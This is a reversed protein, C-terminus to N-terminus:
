HLLCPPLHNYSWLNILLRPSHFIQLSPLLISLLFFSRKLPSLKFTIPHSSMGLLLLLFHSPLSSPLSSSSSPQLDDALKSSPLSSSSSPQLDDALPPPLQTSGPSLNTFQVQESISPSARNTDVPPFDHPLSIPQQMHVVDEPEKEEAHQNSYDSESTPLQDGEPEDDAVQGIEHSSGIATGVVSIDEATSPLLQLSSTPNLCSQLSFLSSLYSM